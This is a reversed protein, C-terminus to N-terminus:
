KSMNQKESAVNARASYQITNTTGLTDAFFVNLPAM